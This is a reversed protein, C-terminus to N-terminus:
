LMSINCGKGLVARERIQAQHWISTGEGIEAEDSVEATPHIRVNERDM